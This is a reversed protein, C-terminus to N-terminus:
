MGIYKEIQKIVSTKDWSSRAEWVLELVAAYCTELQEVTFGQTKTKLMSIIKALVTEDLIFAPEPTMPLDEDRTLESQVAVSTDEISNVELGTKQMPAVVSEKSSPNSHMSVPRASPTKPIFGM